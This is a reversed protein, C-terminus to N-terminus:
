GLIRKPLLGNRSVKGPVGSKQQLLGGTLGDAGIPLDFTGGGRIMGTLGSGSLQGGVSSLLGGSLIKEAPLTNTIGVVADNVPSAGSLAGVAGGVFGGDGAVDLAGMIGNAIELPAGVLDTISELGSTATQLVGTEVLSTVGQTVGELLDTAMDLSAVGELVGSVLELPTDVVQTVAGLLGEGETLSTVISLPADLVQTVEGVLDGVIGLPGEEGLVSNVIGLPAEVVGGIIDTVMGLPLSDMVSNVVGLPAEIVGGVLDTVMDLPLTEMVSNVIGLPASLLGTAIGTVSDLLGGTLDGLPGDPGLFSEVIQLIDSLTCKMKFDRDPGEECEEPITSAKSM